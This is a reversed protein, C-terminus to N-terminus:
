SIVTFHTNDDIFSLVFRKGDYSQPNVPGFLDSHILELPRRARKRQQTHPLKTQKGEVCIRCTGSKKGKKNLDSMGDVLQSLKVMGRYNLHGLRKHWLDNMDSEECAHACETKNKFQMEYLKDKRYDIAIVRNGRCIKGIGKEFVIKYGCMELKRVSLINTELDPVILIERM